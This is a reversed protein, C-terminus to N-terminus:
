KMTITTFNTHGQMINLYGLPGLYNKQLKSRYDSLLKHLMKVEYVLHNNKRTFPPDYPQLHPKPHYIIGVTEKHLFGTLDLFQLIKLFKITFFYQHARVVRLQFPLM